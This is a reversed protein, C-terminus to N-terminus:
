WIIHNKSKKWRNTLRIQRRRQKGREHM